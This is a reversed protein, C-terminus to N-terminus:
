GLELKCRAALEELLLEFPVEIENRMWGIPVKLKGSVVYAYPKIVHASRELNLVYRDGSGEISKVDAYRIKKTSNPRIVEFSDESLAYEMAAAQNHLLEALAGRGAAALAGAAQKFNQGLATADEPLTLTKTLSKADKRSKEAGTQLWRIAEGPKYRVLEM